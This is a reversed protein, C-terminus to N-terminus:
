HKCALFIEGRATASRRSSPLRPNFGTKVWPFSTFFPHTAYRRKFEIWL